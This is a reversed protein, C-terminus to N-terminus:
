AQRKHELIVRAREQKNRFTGDIGLDKLEQRLASAKHAAAYDAVENDTVPEIAEGAQEAVPPELVEPEVVEESPEPEPIPELELAPAFQDKSDLKRWVPRSNYNVGDEAICDFQIRAWAHARCRAFGSKTTDFTQTDGPRVSISGGDALPFKLPRRDRNTITLKM